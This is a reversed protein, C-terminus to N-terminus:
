IKGKLISSGLNLGRLIMVMALGIEGLLSIEDALADDFLQPELQPEIWGLFLSRHLEGLFREGSM